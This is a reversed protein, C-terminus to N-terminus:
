PKGPSPQAVPKPAAPAAPPPSPLPMPRYYKPKGGPGHNDLSEIYEVIAALRKDKHATGSLQASYSPMVNQYGRLVKAGPDLISERLYADWKADDDDARLAYGEPAVSFSHDSKYLGLWTPGQGPSGDVSHCQACGSTKYLREGVKAYPLPQRTAPDMFINALEALKASYGTEDLVEAETTMLSHGNGCYQTCFVHYAGIRTPQFWL